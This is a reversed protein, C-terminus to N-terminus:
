PAVEDSSVEVDHLFDKMLDEVVESYPKGKDICAKRFNKTIEDDISFTVTEKL